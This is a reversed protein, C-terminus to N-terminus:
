CSFSVFTALINAGKRLLKLMPKVMRESNLWNLGIVANLNDEPDVACRRVLSLRNLATVLTFISIQGLVDVVALDYGTHNWSLHALQQDGHVM